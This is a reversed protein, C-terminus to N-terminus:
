LQQRALFESVGSQMIKVQDITYEDYKGHAAKNRLDFWATINKQDLKNYIDKSALESNLRDAKKPILDGERDITTDIEYKNCLQRLHEELVSGIMVAAPDKYKNDLLHNAMELFDSFIESSILGKYTQFWGNQIEAKVSNLIEIGKLLEYYRAISTNQDFEVYFPHCTEFTAKLFSLTSSRFGHFLASSINKSLSGQTATEITKQAQKELFEIRKLLEVSNAKM